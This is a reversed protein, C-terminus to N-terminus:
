FTTTADPTAFPNSSTNNTVLNEPQWNYSNGGSASLQASSANCINQDPSISFVPAPKVAIEVSDRYECLYQDTIKVVYKTTSQPSAVPNPINSNSLTSAPFWEYKNGGLAFLQINASSCVATDDSVSINSKPYVSIIVTDNKSCGWPTKGTVIYSTTAVPTAVPNAINYNSLGAAPLWSYSNAGNASLQMKNGNCTVTDRGANVNAKEVNIVVSDRQVIVPAFSLDDLAFDNGSFEPNM